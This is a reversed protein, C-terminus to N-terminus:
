EADEIHPYILNYLEECSCFNALAVIRETYGSHIVVHGFAISSAQLLNDCFDLFAQPVGQQQIMDWYEETEETVPPIYQMIFDICEKEEPTLVTIMSFHSEQPLTAPAVTPLQGQEWANPHRRCKPIPLKRPAGGTRIAKQFPHAAKYVAQKTSTIGSVVKQVDQQVQTLTMAQQGNMFKQLNSVTLQLDDLQDFVKGFVSRQKKVVSRLQKINTERQEITKDQRLQADLCEDLLIDREMSFFQDPLM